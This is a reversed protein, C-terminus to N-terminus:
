KFPIIIKADTTRATDTCTTIEPADLGDSKYIIFVAPNLDAAQRFGELGGSTFKTCGTHRDTGGPGQHIFPHLGRRPLLIKHGTFGGTRSVDINGPIQTHDGPAFSVLGVSNDSFFNGKRPYQPSDANM